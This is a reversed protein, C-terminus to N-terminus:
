AIHHETIKLSRDAIRKLEEIQEKQERVIALTKDANTILKECLMKLQDHASKWDEKELAFTYVAWFEEWEKKELINEAERLIDGM